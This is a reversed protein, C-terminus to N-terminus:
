GENMHKDFFDKNKEIIDLTQEYCELVDATEAGSFNMDKVGMAVSRSRVNSFREKDNNRQSSIFNM